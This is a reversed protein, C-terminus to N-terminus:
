GTDAQTAALAARADLLARADGLWESMAAAASGSLTAVIDAAGALDGAELATRARTLIGAAPDGILVRDGERITILAQARAWARELFPKDATDPRGAALAAREAAPFALRLAAETPPAITAFRTLSPPAGPLVGIPQGANLAARASQLRAIRATKGVQVAVEKASREAAEASREAAELRAAGSELRRAIETEVSQTRGTLGEIRGALADIRAVLAPDSAPKQELASLRSQVPGLDVPPRQELASLRSQVPGLDPVPRQELAGLRSQMPGVDATPRQELRTLRADLRQLQQEITALHPTTLDLAPEPPARTPSRWLWIVAVSLVLFGFGYLWPVLNRKPRVPPPPPSDPPAPLAPTDTM